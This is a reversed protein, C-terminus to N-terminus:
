SIFKRFPTFYYSGSDRTKRKLIKTLTFTVYVSSSTNLCQLLANFSLKTVTDKCVTIVVCGVDQEGSDM